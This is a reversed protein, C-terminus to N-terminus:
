RRTCSMSLKRAAALLSGTVSVESAGASTKSSPAPDFKNHSSTLSRRLLRFGAWPRRSLRPDPKPRGWKDQEHLWRRAPERM